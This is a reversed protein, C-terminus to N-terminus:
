GHARQECVNKIGETCAKFEGDGDRGQDDALSTHALVTLRVVGTWKDPAVSRSHPPM